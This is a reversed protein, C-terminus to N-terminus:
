EETVRHYHVVFLNEYDCDEYVDYVFATAAMDGINWLHQAVLNLIDGWRPRFMLSEIAIDEDSCSGSSDPNIVIINLLLHDSPLLTDLTVKEEDPTGEEDVDLIVSIELDPL